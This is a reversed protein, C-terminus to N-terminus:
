IGYVVVDYKRLKLIKRRLVVLRDSWCSAKVALTCRIAFTRLMLLNKKRKKNKKKQKLSGHLKRHVMHMNSCPRCRSTVNVEFNVLLSLRVFALEQLSLFSKRSNNRLQVIKFM